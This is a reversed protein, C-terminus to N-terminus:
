GEVVSGEANSLALFVPQPEVQPTSTSGNGGARCPAMRYSYSSRALQYAKVEQFGEM